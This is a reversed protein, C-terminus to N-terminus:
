DVTSRAWCRLPRGPTWLGVLGTVWPLGFMFLFPGFAIWWAWAGFLNVLAWGMYEGLELRGCLLIRFYNSFLSPFHSEFMM